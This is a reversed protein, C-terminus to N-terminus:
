AKDESKLYKALTQDFDSTFALDQKVQFQTFQGIPVIKDSM